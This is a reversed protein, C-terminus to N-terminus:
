CHESTHIGLTILIRHQTHGRWHTHELARRHRRGTAVTSAGVRDVATAPERAGTKATGLAVAVTRRPDRRGIVEAGIRDYGLYVVIPTERRKVACNYM